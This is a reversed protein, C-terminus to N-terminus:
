KSFHTTKRWTTFNSSSLHHKSPWEFDNRSGEFGSSNTFISGVYRGNASTIDALSVVNHLIRVRNFARLDSTSTLFEAAAEMLPRDHVRKPHLQAHHIALPIEKKNNFSCVSYLWSHHSCWQSYATFRTNDWIYGFLGVDLVHIEISIQLLKGTPTQQWCHKILLSTRATGMNTYLNPVALGLSQTPAHHVVSSICSSIGAKPLAVRIAPVMISTCEKEALTLDPLPYMLKRSITTHLATWAETWAEAQSLRGIRLKAAWNVAALCLSNIMKKNQGSPSMWLGLMESKDDCNLRTLSIFEGDAARAVLDFDGLDADSAIWKGHKWVYEVMYWYSKSPGLNLAGGTVEMLDGWQQVVTQMSRAVELPDQGSQILDCDDVYAFGVLLFLEKSISSCFRDSHGEKRLVGSANGQIAGQPAFLWDVFDDGGYSIESYGFATRVRHM